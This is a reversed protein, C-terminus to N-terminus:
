EIITVKGIYEHEPGNIEKLFIRYVYTDMIVDDISGSNNLTGNWSEAQSGYWKNTHFLLNGWRNFIFMEFNNTDVNTGQPTFVDNLQDDNPSFANPIYFTFIDKVKVTGTVTDM